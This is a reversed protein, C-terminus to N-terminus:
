EGKKAFRECIALYKEAREAATDFKKLERYGAQILEERLAKSAILKEIEQAASTANTPQFYLAASGCISHAFGLDTTVEFQRDHTVTFGPLHRDRETGTRVVCSGVAGPLAFGALLM